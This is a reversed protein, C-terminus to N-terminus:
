KLEKRKTDSLDENRLKADIVLISEVFDQIEESKEDVEISFNNTEEDHYIYYIDEASDPLNNQLLNLIVQTGKDVETERIITNFDIWPLMRMTNVDVSHMSGLEEVLPKVDRVTVKTDNRIKKINVIENKPIKRKLVLNKTKVEEMEVEPPLQVVGESYLIVPKYEVNMNDPETLIVHGDDTLVIKNEDIEIPIPVTSSIFDMEKEKKVEIKFDIDSDNESQDQTIAMATPAINIPPPIVFEEKIDSKIEPKIEDFDPLPVYIRGDSIPPLITMVNPNALIEAPDDDEVKIETPVLTYTTRARVDLDLRNQDRRFEPIYQQVFETDDYEGDEFIDPMEQMLPDNNEDESEKKVFIDEIEAKVEEKINKIDEIFDEPEPQTLIDQLNPKIEEPEEYKVDPIYKLEPLDDSTQESVAQSMGQLFVGIGKLVSPDLQPAAPENRETRTYDLHGTEENTFIGDGPDIADKILDIKNKAEIDEIIEFDRENKALEGELFQKNWEKRNEDIEEETKVAPPEFYPTYDTQGNQIIDNVVKEEIKEIETKNDEKEKRTLEEIVERGSQIQEKKQEYIQKQILRNISQVLATVAEVQVQISANDNTLAQWSLNHFLESMANRPVEKDGGLFRNFAALFQLSVIGQM